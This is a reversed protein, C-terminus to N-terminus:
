AKEIMQDIAQLPDKSNFIYSGSVLIDAGCRFLKQANQNSVGGDIEIKAHSGSQIVLEKTQEIKRYSSEIFSQGGFGPNVSMLLVLDVETIINDLLSVGSHPNLAVGAKMGERKIHQIYRHLHTSAELHITLIDAGAEKFRSIHREPEVIMLHVDLVKTTKKRIAEIVPMGFSINPVFVGDMVDLHFWQARSRNVMEIDNKLHSFDASLISPAIIKEMSLFLICYYVFFGANAPNM